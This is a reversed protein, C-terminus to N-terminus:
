SSRALEREFFRRMAEVAEKRLEDMPPLADAQPAHRTKPTLLYAARVRNDGLHEALIGAGGTVRTPLFFFKDKPYEGPRRGAFEAQLPIALLRSTKPTVAGGFVKLNLAPDNVQVIGANGDSLAVMSGAIKGWFSSKSWGQKNPRGNLAQFHFRLRKEVAKAGLKTTRAHDRMRGATAKLDDMFATAPIAIVKGKIM